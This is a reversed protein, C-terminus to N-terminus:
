FTVNLNLGISRLTPMANHSLGQVGISTGLMSEPDIDEAKNMLFFLNRGVVQVTASQIGLKNSKLPISYGLALERLRINDQDYIYNESINSMATWYQQGTISETNASGTGTNTGSVTIGTDRYQLSRESVGNRDLDASTQSYIKGGIRADILFNLSLNKYKISNSWAGKWDPQANGLFVDPAESAIPVGDADVEGTWVRGYIDGIGGGETAVIAVNGDTSINYRFSEIGEVLEEIKNENKSYFFSTNWSFDNSELLTAGLAIELGKNTVKGINERNFLYGTAAPVPVDFILDETSMNYVSVDLTLKNSFMGLELGFESSTVTEPKLGSNLKVTPSLLTTLGLYGQGPVSFTQNLQYPETDNGVQAVSGRVKILNFLERDPDIFKNLIASLSASNYMYSRNEESLTSSWDNRASVDLYLFNDYAVNLSGYLSNVKKIALPSEEPANVVNLNSIFFATPIKFDTGRVLMGESTRKSLNGGVNAVINLKDTFDHKATVLFESNLENFTSEGIEMSGRTIFHHGPKYIKIDRINTVDAGVRVFASLWDTFEYNIKAFGLFRSRRVSTEDNYVQWFPNGTNGDAYRIVNFDEPAGPNAMQYDRLDDVAVNRPMNYVYALLGQAGTTSARNNVNQTFYTAKTDVTLKDSLNTVARLNFNHSALDSNEVISNSSNNTYSFRVSSNESGKDISLSTIKRTAQRFFDKVNNSQASYSKNTGNYYAQQSGDLPAGWSLEGWDSLRDTYAAGFSGQGYKNQYEPLLMPNDIYLNSKISVGLNNSRSGKKTTILIVGNGARSGYLAAASPGKLVSISEVDDPNIDSIGGGSISPEYSPSGGNDASGSNIQSGGSNIPLSANIPMGDVVILAQSNGGLSNNGRITIRSASGLSGSQSIQLGAVKGALSSALNNDKITNVNEGSVQTVAYGLSKKERSIGLATVVVEDLAEASQELTVNLISEGNLTIEKTKYGLYSFQLTANKNSIEITFKGNFDSTTGNSTGKELVTVSPLEMGDTSDSITGTVTTQAFSNFASFVFIVLVLNMIKQIM